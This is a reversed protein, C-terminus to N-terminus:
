PTWIGSTTPGRWGPRGGTPWRLQRDVGGGAPLAAPDARGAHGAGARHRTRVAGQPPREPDLGPGRFRAGPEPDAGEHGGLGPQEPVRGGMRRAHGEHLLAPEGRHGRDLDPRPSRGPVGSGRRGARCGAPGGLAGAPQGPPRGRGRGLRHSRRLLQRLARGARRGDRDARGPRGGGPRPQVTGRVRVRRSGAPRLARHHARTRGADRGTAGTQPDFARFQMAGDVFILVPGSGFRDYAIRTGDASTAFETM